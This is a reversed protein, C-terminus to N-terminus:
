IGRWKSRKNEQTERDRCL